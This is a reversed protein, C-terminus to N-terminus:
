STDSRALAHLALAHCEGLVEDVAYRRRARHGPPRGPRMPSSRVSKSNRKAGKLLAESAPADLSERRARWRALRLAQRDIDDLAHKLASLRRRIGGADVPDDCSPIWHEPVPVPDSLGICTVRPFSLSRRRFPRFPLAPLPDLLPLAPASATEGANAAFRSTRGRADDEPKVRPGVGRRQMVVFMNAHSAEKKEDSARAAERSHTRPDLGLIVAHTIAKRRMRPFRRVVNLDRAAIVVLRRWAAEAPRLVRLVHNRLHRPVTPGAPELGLLMALSAVIRLLAARNREIALPWNVTEVM